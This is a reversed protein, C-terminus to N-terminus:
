NSEDWLSLIKICHHLGKKNSHNTALYVNTHPQHVKTRLDLMGDVAAEQLLNTLTIRSPSMAAIYKPEINFGIATLFSGIVFPIFYSGGLWSLGPTHAIGAAIMKRSSENAFTFTKATLM